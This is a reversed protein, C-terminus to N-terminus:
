GSYGSYVEGIVDLLDGVHFPKQLYATAGILRAWQPAEGYGTILIVPLSLGYMQISRAFHVGDVVPMHLDLVVMSPKATLLLGLGEIGDTTGIVRYGEGELLESLFAVMEPEDDVVLVPGAAM